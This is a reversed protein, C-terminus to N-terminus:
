SQLKYDSNEKSQNIDVKIFDISDIKLLYINSLKYRNMNLIWILYYFLKLSLFFKYNQIQYNM